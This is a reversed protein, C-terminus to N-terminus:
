RVHKRRDNQTDLLQEFHQLGTKLVGKYWMTYNSIQEQGIFFYVPTTLDRTIQTGITTLVKDYENVFEAVKDDDLKNNYLVLKLSKSRDKFFKQLLKIDKKNDIIDDLMLGVHRM